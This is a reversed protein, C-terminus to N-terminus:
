LFENPLVQGIIKQEGARNAEHNQDTPYKTQPWDVFPWDAQVFDM